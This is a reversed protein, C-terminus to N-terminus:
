EVCEDESEGDIGELVFGDSLCDNIFEQYKEPVEVHIASDKFTIYVQVDNSINFSEFSDPVYTQQIKHFYVSYGAFAEIYENIYIRFREEDIDIDSKKDLVAFLVQEHANRLINYTELENLVTEDLDEMIRKLLFKRM